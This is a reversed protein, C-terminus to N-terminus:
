NPTKAPRQPPQAAPVPVPAPVIGQQADMLRQAGAPMTWDGPSPRRDYVEKMFAAWAPAAYRGGQALPMITQPHDFGMWVGAVMEKTYGIFWVDTYDNTTGTKGAAPLNFGSSRVATTATGGRIVGKLMDNLVFAMDPNM